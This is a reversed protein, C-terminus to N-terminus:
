APAAAAPQVSLAEKLKMELGANANTLARIQEQLAAVQQQPTLAPVPKAAPVANTTPLYASLEKIKDALYDLRYSVAAPNSAPYDAHLKQLADLAKLYESAAAPLHGGKQLDDASCSKITSLWIIRM